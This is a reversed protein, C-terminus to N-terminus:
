MLIGQEVTLEAHTHFYPNLEENVNFLWRYLVFRLIISLNVDKQTGRNVDSLNLPVDNQELCQLYTGVYSIKDCENAAECVYNAAECPLRSMGDANFHSHSYVYKIDFDYGSM